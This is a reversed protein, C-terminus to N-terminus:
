GDLHGFHVSINYEVHLYVMITASVITHFKSEM